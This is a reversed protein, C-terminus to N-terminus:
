LGRLYRVIRFEYLLLIIIFVTFALISQCLKTIKNMENWSKKIKFHLLFIMHIYVYLM